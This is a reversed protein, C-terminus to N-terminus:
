RDQRAQIFFLHAYRNKIQDLGTVHDRLELEGTETHLQRLSPSPAAVIAPGHSSTPSTM